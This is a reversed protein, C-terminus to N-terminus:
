GNYKNQTGNNTDTKELGTEESM